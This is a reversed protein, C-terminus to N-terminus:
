DTSVSVSALILYNSMLVTKIHTNWINLFNLTSRSSIFFAWIFSRSTNSEDHRLLFVSLLISPLNSMAFFFFSQNVRLCWYFSDSIFCFSFFIYKKKVPSSDMLQPVIGRTNMYVENDSFFLLYYTLPFFM